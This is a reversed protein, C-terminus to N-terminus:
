KLTKTPGLSCVKNVLNPWVQNCRSSELAEFNEVWLSVLFEAQRATWRKRKVKTEESIKAEQKAPEPSRLYSSQLLQVKPMFGHFNPPTYWIEHNNFNQMVVKKCMHRKHFSFFYELCCKANKKKCEANKIFHDISNIRRYQKLAFLAHRSARRLQVKNLTCTNSCILHDCYNCMKIEVADCKLNCNFNNTDVTAIQLRRMCKQRTKYYFLQRMQRTKCYVTMIFSIQFRLVISVLFQIESAWHEKTRQRWLSSLLSPYIKTVWRSCMSWLPKSNEVLIQVM